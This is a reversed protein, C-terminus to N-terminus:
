RVALWVNAVISTKRTKHCIYKSSSKTRIMTLRGCWRDQDKSATSKIRSYGFSFNFLTETCQYISKYTNKVDIDYQMQNTHMQNTHMHNMPYMNGARTGYDNKKERRDSKEREEAKSVSRAEKHQKVLLKEM